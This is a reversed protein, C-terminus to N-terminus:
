GVSDNGSEPDKRREGQTARAGHRKELTEAMHNLHKALDQLEDSRRLIIRRGYDGKIMSQVFRDFAVLPGYYKHTIRLVVAFLVVIFTVLVAAIRYVNTLIIDNTVLELKLNPDVVQFIEMVHSYQESFANLVLLGTIVVFSISLCLVHLGLKIQAFPEVLITRLTRSKRDKAM